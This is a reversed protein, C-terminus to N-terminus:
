AHHPLLNEPVTERLLRRVDEPSWRRAADELRQVQNRVWQPDPQELEAVFIESHETATINEATTLLEEYLKEGPRMGTFVVEVGQAGTLQILDQALDAIRVPQGMNLVHVSGNLALGGAQVVLRSAEPITMFYRTMEPHTVTIPGGAKIQALFTPVVSGRSGLVNGFRVSVFAQGPKTRQAGSSVLMEAVRKSAGMVSTPNVAKDTSINVLREVGFELSLEVVNRTGVINNLIAECPSGEMLPVHKHAAAHFVVNPRHQGFVARLRTEDRVDGILAVCDIDPWNRAMEQEINFISNEGRGFLIVRRPAFQVVQRVLESGISGGAGTVLVVKDRLYGAIAQTDIQAPPRRLLDEPRVERIQSVSVQGGLIEYIGPIIRYAVGAGKSQAIVKRVVEGGASPIAILVENVQQAEIVRALTDLTGLMPLGMFTKRQKDPDDDVFGIVDLGAEPHRGIERAIMVGADGAGVVLVRKRPGEFTTAATRRGDREFILRFLLRAAGMTLLAFLGELLPVSRPIGGPQVLLLALQLLVTTSGVALLLRYLDHVSVIQWRQRHLRFRYIVFAKFPLTAAVYLALPVAYGQLHGDLRTSYALLAAVSWLFLDILYKVHVTTM